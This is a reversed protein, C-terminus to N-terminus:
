TAGDEGRLWDTQPDQGAPVGAEGSGGSSARDSGSGYGGGASTAQGTPPQEPRDPLPEDDADDPSSAPPSANTVAHDSRPGAQAPHDSMDRAPERRRLEDSM